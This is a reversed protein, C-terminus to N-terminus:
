EDFFDEEDITDLGYAESLEQVLKDAESPNKSIEGFERM